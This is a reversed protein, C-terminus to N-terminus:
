AGTTFYYTDMILWKDIHSKTMREVVTNPFRYDSPARACADNEEDDEVAFVAQIANSVPIDHAHLGDVFSDLWEIWGTFNTTTARPACDTEDDLSFGDVGTRQWVDLADQIFPAPDTTHPISGAVMLHFQTDTDRCAQLIPQCHEWITQNLVLGNPTLFLGCWVQIGDIIDTWSSNRLQEITINALRDSAWGWVQRDTNGLTVSLSSLLLLLCLRCASM